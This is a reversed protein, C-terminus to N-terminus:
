VFSTHAGTTATLVNRDDMGGTIWLGTGGIGPMDSIGFALTQFFEVNSNLVCYIEDPENFAHIHYTSPWRISLALPDGIKVHRETAGTLAEKNQGTGGQLRLQNRGNLQDAFLQVYADRKSLIGKINAWGAAGAASEIAAKLDGFSNALGTYYAM